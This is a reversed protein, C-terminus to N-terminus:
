KEEEEEEMLKMNCMKDTLEVQSPYRESYPNDCRFGKDEKGQIYCNLADKMIWPVVHDNFIVYRQWKSLFPINRQIWLWFKVILPMRDIGLDDDLQYDLVDDCDRCTKSTSSIM